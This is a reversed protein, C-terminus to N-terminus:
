RTANMYDSGAAGGEGGVMSRPETGTTVSPSEMEHLGGHWHHDGPAEVPASNPTRTHKQRDDYQQQHHKSYHPPAETPHHGDGRLESMSPTHATQQRAQRRRRIILFVGLGILLLVLAAIGIGIGAKAGTSLGDDEPSAEDSATAPASPVTSRTAAPPVYSAPPESTAIQYDACDVSFQNVTANSM